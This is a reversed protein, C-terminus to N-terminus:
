SREGRIPVVNGAARARRKAMQERNCVRCKQHGSPTTYVNEATYPHGQPCQAGRQRGPRRPARVRRRAREGLGGWVGHRVGVLFSYERCEERVPCGSCVAIADKAPEGREPFFLRVPMGACAAEAMWGADVDPTM